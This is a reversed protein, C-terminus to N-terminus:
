PRRKLVVRAKPVHTPPFQRSWTARGLTASCDWECIEDKGEREVKMM